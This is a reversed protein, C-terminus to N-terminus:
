PVTESFQRVHTYTIVDGVKDIKKGLLYEERDVSQQGPFGFTIECLMEVHDPTLTNNKDLGVAVRVVAIQPRVAVPAHVTTHVFQTFRPMM